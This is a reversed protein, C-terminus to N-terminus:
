WNPFSKSNWCETIKDREDQLERTAAPIAQVHKERQKFVAAVIFNLAAPLVLCYLDATRIAKLMAGVLFILVPAVLFVIRVMDGFMQGAVLQRYAQIERVSRFATVQSAFAWLAWGFWVQSCLAVFQPALIAGILLTHLQENLM